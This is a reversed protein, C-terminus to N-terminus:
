SLLIIGTRESMELNELPVSTKEVYHPLPLPWFPFALPFFSLPTLSHHGGQTDALALGFPLGTAAQPRWLGNSCRQAGQASRYATGSM